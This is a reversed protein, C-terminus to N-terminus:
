RITVVAFAFGWGIAMLLIAISGWVKEFLTFVDEDDSPTMPLM